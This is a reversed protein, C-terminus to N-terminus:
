LRYLVREGLACIHWSSAPSIRRLEAAFRLPDATNDMVMDYHTPITLKAGLLAALRASEEAEMNGICRRMTRFRDAGNIPPLFIDPSDLVTLDRLLEETLYTDGLHLLRINELAVQYGLSMDPNEPNSVHEPHATSVATVCIGDELTCRGGGTLPLQRNEPIGLERALSRCGAPFLFRADPWRAAIARITPGAMHDAHGHTCLVYDPRLADPAFPAPYHRRTAGDPGTLDNLVPDILLLKGKYKVAFGCQGLYWLAAEDEGTETERIQALLADGSLQWKDM